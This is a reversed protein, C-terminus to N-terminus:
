SNTEKRSYQPNAPKWMHCNLQYKCIVMDLIKNLLTRNGEWAANHLAKEELILVGKVDMNLCSKKILLIMIIM